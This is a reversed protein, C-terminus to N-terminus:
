DGRLGRRRSAPEVYALAATRLKQLEIPTPQTTGRYRSAYDDCVAAPDVFALFRICTERSNYIRM